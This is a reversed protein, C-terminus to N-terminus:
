RRSKNCALFATILSAGELSHLMRGVSGAGIDGAGLITGNIDHRAHYSNRKSPSSSRSPPKYPIDNVAAFAPSSSAAVLASMSPESPPPSLAALAPDVPQPQSIDFKTLLRLPASLLAPRRVGQVKALTQNEKEMEAEARLTDFSWESMMTGKLTEDKLPDIAGAKGGKGKAADSDKRTSRWEHHREILESLQSTRRAYKVFRHQLLEKASPRQVTTM